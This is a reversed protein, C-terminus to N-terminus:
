CSVSFQWEESGVDGTFRVIRWVERNAAPWTKNTFSWALMDGTFNMAGYFGPKHFSLSIQLCEIICSGASDMASCTKAVLKIRPLM